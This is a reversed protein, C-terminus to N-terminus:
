AFNDAYTRRKTRRSKSQTKKKAASRKVGKGKLRKKTVKRRPKRTSQGIRRLKSRAQEVDMAVPTVLKVHARNAVGWTGSLPRQNKYSAAGSGWTGYLSTAKRRRKTPVTRPLQGESMNKFFRISEQATPVRGHVLPM